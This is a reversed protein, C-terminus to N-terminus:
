DCWGHLFGRQRAPELYVWAESHEHRHKRESGARLGVRFYDRCVPKATWWEVGDIRTVFRLREISYLRGEASLLGGHEVPGVWLPAPLLRTPEPLWLPSREALRLAAPEGSARRGTRLSAPELPVLRSQAEPRHSDQRRLVGVRGRGLWAELEALLTPLAEPSPGSRHLLDLQSRPAPSLLECRLKVSVVPAGLECRELRARLPRLLDEARSLAVPLELALRAATGEAGRLEAMSRDYGLELVLRSCAEGRARLRASARAVLGRLVFLLPETGCLEEDFSVQEDVQRPPQYPVLPQEDRGDIFALLDPAGPGLRHGLQARDLRALDGIHLLGLKGLWGATEPELPLAAVPLEALVRAAEGSPVVGGARGARGARGWRAVAQAIRLGEATAVRVRHGLAGVREGLEECLLDEGGIHRGCGSVDLWVTEVPGAGAGGPYSAFGPPARSSRAELKTAATTGFALALEAVDGLAHAIEHWSLRVVRLKGVFAAAESVSQGPRVGYRWAQEDVAALLSSGPPDNRAAGASGDDVIVALPGLTRRVHAARGRALECALDPLVIAAFRKAPLGSSSM